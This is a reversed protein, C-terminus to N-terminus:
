VVGYFGKYKERLVKKDFKGTGTKPIDDVFIVEDPVYWKPLRMNLFSIIDEKSVKDHFGPKLKVILLPREGWRPHPIAVAVAELVAPHAMAENEIKVSSIWEGGSKIIDKLRDVIEIYGESDITVIDGTRLWGNIFSKKTNEPSEYYEEIVWAGRILLEGISKEDWPLQNGNEDVIMVEIGPFPLGQKSILNLM